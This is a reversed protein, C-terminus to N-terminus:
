AFGDRFALEWREGADWRFVSDSFVPARHRYLDRYLAHVYDKYSGSMVEDM